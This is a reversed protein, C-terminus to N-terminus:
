HCETRAGARWGAFEIDTKAGNKASEQQQIVLIANNVHPNTEAVEQKDCFIKENVNQM